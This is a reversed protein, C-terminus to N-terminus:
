CRTMRVPFNPLLQIATVLIDPLPLPAKLLLTQGSKIRTIATTLASRPCRLGLRTDQLGRTLTGSITPAVPAAIPKGFLQANALRAHATDPAMETNLRMPQTPVHGAIVRLKFLLGGVDNAQVKLWREVSCHETDILLASDLCEVSKVRNQREGRASGFPM